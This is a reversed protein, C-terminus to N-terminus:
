FYDQPKKKEFIKSPFFDVIRTTAQRSKRIGLKQVDCVKGISRLTSQVNAPSLSVVVLEKKCISIADVLIAGDPETDFSATKSEIKELKGSFPAVIIKGAPLKKNSLVIV